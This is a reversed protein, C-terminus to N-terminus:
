GARRAAVCHAMTDTTNQLPSDTSQCAAKAAPSPSRWQHAAEDPADSFNAVAAGIGTPEATALKSQLWIAAPNMSQQKQKRRMGYSLKHCNLRTLEGNWLCREDWCLSSSYAVRSSRAAALDM